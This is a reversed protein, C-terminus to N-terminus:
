KAGDKPPPSVERPKIPSGRVNCQNTRPLPGSDNVAVFADGAANLQYAGTSGVNGACDTAFTLVQVSGDAMVSIAMSKGAAEDEVSLGAPGRGEDVDVGDAARGGALVGDHGGDVAGGGGGADAVEARRVGGLREDGGRGVAVDRDAGAQPLMHPPNRPAGQDLDSRCCVGARGRRPRAQARPRVVHSRRPPASAGLRSQPLPLGAPGVAVHRERGAHRRLSRRVLAAGEVTDRAGGAAAGRMVPAPDPSM